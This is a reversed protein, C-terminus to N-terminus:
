VKDQDELRNYLRISSTVRLMTNTSRAIRSDQAELAPLKHPWNLVRIQTWLESLATSATASIIDDHAPSM